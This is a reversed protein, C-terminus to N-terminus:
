QVRVPFNGEPKQGSEGASRPPIYVKRGKPVEVILQYWPKGPVAKLGLSALLKRGPNKKGRSVRSIHSPSVGLAKAVGWLTVHKLRRVRLITRIDEPYFRRARANV